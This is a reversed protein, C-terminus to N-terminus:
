PKQKYQQSMLKFLEEIPVKEYGQPITFVSDAIPTEDMQELEMNMQGLTGDFDAPLTVGQQRMPEVMNKLSPMILTMRMRMGVSTSTKIIEDFATRFKEGAGPFSAFAKQLMTSPDMTGKARGMFEACQKLAPVRNVEAATPIWHNM